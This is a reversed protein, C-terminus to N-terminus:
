LMDILNITESVYIENQIFRQKLCAIIKNEDIECIDAHEM